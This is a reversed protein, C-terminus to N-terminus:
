RKVWFAALYNESAVKVNALETIVAHSIQNSTLLFVNLKDLYHNIHKIHHESYLAIIEREVDNHTHQHLLSPLSTSV